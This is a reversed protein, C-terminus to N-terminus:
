VNISYKGPYDKKRVFKPNEMTFCELAVVYGTCFVVVKSQM